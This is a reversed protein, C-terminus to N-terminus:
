LCPRGRGLNLVPRPMDEYRKQYLSVNSALSLGIIKAVDQADILDDLKVTRSIRLNYARENGDSRRLLTRSTMSSITTGRRHQYCGSAHGSGTLPLSLHGSPIEGEPEGLVPRSLRGDDPERHGALRSSALAGIFLCTPNVDQSM